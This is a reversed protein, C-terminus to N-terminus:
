EAKQSNVPLAKAADSTLQPMIVAGELDNLTGNNQLTGVMGVHINAKEINFNRKELIKQKIENANSTWVEEGTLLMNLQSFIGLALNPEVKLLEKEIVSIPVSAEVATKLREVVMMWNQEMLQMTNRCEKLQQNIEDYSLHRNRSMVEEFEDGFLVTCLADLFTDKPTNKMIDEMRTIHKVAKDKDTDTPFIDDQRLLVANYFLHINPHYSQLINVNNIVQAFTNFNLGVIRKVMVSYINVLYQWHVRVMEYMQMREEYPPCATAIAYYAQMVCFLEGRARDNQVALREIEKEIRSKDWERIYPEYGQSLLDKMIYRFNRAPTETKLQNDVLEMIDHEGMWDGLGDFQRMTYALLSVPEECASYPTQECLLKWYLGKLSDHIKERYEPLYDYCKITSGIARCDIYSSEGYFYSELPEVIQTRIRDEVSIIAFPKNYKKTPFEM